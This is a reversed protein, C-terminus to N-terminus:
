TFLKRRADDCERRWRIIVWEGIPVGILVTLYAARTLVVSGTRLGVVALVFGLASAVILLSCRLFARREIYYKYLIQAELQGGAGRFIRRKYMDLFNANVNRVGIVNAVQLLTLLGCYILIDTVEAILCGFALALWVAVILVPGEAEKKKDDVFAEHMLDLEHRVTHLYLVFDLTTVTLLAAALIATTRDDHFMQILRDRSLLLAAVALAFGFSWNIYERLRDYLVTRDWREASTILPQDRQAGTSTSCDM